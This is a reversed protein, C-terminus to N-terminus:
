KRKTSVKTSQAARAFAAAPIAPAGEDSDRALSPENTSKTIADEIWKQDEEPLSKFVKDKKIKAPSIIDVIDAYEFGIGVLEPLMASAPDTWKQQTAGPKLRWGIKTGDPREGVVKRGNALEFKAREKAADILKSTREAVDLLYAINNEAWEPHAAADILEKGRERWAPCLLKAPCYGCWVGIAFPATPSRAQTLALDITKRFARVEERTVDITTHAPDFSPQIIALKFTEVKALLEGISPPEGEGGPHNFDEIGVAAIFKNQMSTPSVEVYGFKHDAILARRGDESIALIDATGFVEVPTHVVRQEILQMGTYDAMLAEASELAIVVNQAMEKSIQTPGMMTGIFDEPKGGEILIHEILGHQATGDEAAQGAPLKPSAAVLKVSGPCMVVRECTSSGMITAHQSVSSEM